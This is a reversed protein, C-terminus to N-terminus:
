KKEKMHLFLYDGSDAPFSNLTELNLDHLAKVEQVLLEPFSRTDLGVLYNQTELAVRLFSRNQLGM